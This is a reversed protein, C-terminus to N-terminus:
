FSAFITIKLGSNSILNLKSIDLVLNSICILESKNNSKIIMTSFNDTPTLIKMNKTFSKKRYRDMKLGLNSTQATVTINLVVLIEDQSIMKATIKNPDEPFKYKKISKGKFCYFNEKFKGSENCGNYIPNCEAAYPYPNKLLCINICGNEIVDFIM